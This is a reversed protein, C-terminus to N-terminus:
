SERVFSLGDITSYTILKIPSICYNNKNGYNFANCKDVFSTRREDNSFVKALIFPTIEVPLDKYLPILYDIVWAIYRPLQWDIISDYAEVCKLEIINIRVTDKAKQITMVDISQMGVGCSVENGIWLPAADDINMLSCLPRKDINQTLYAQLHAEYALRREDKYFLRDLIEILPKSGTYSNHQTSQIICHHEEDYTFGNAKIITQSNEKKILGILRESENETGHRTGRENKPLYM